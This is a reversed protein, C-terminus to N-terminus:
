VLDFLKKKIKLVFLFEVWVCCIILDEFIEVDVILM